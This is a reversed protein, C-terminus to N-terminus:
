ESADADAEGVAGNAADVADARAAEAVAAPSLATDNWCPLRTDPGPPAISEAYTRVQDREDGADYSLGNFAADAGYSAVYSDAAARYADPLAEYDPDVGHEGAARLLAAGVSESMDSLGTPGSVARHDHEYSGLDVQAAGDVGVADYAAALTGVELGWTRQVPLSAVVDGTAAFEGALAYRFASLYDVVPDDRDGALAAVVPEYLLRCLRGYLRGNEVRAYYGKVFSYDHALPFLLRPM